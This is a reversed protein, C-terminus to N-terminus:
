TSPNLLHSPSHAPPRGFVRQALRELFGASTGTDLPEDREAAPPPRKMILHESRELTDRGFHIPWHVFGLLGSDRVPDGVGVSLVPGLSRRYWQCLLRIGVVEDTAAGVYDYRGGAACGFGRAALAKFLRIRQDPHHSVFRFPEGYERLKALQAHQLTLRCERAVDESSADHFGEVDIGLRAAAQDLAQVVDEYPRGFEVVEYGGANRANPLDFGFYGRPVCVAAGNECVFPHRLGFRNQLHEIEARTRTSCLVLPVDEDTVLRRVSLIEDPLRGLSELLLETDAFVIPRVEL